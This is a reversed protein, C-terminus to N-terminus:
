SRSKRRFSRKRTWSPTSCTRLKGNKIKVAGIETMKDTAPYFGTTETDFVVFEGRFPVAAEGYVTPVADNVFYCETGYLIKVNYKKGAKMADPFAQVVGHDTVAVARHGLDAARAVLDDVSAVADMTSMQTHLHLEIRKEKEDDSPKKKKIEQIDFPKLVLDHEYRDNEV